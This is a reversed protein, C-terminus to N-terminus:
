AGQPLMLGSTSRAFIRGFVEIAPAAMGALSMFDRRRRMVAGKPSAAAAAGLSVYAEGHANPMSTNWGVTESTGDPVLVGYAETGTAQSASQAIDETMNSVTTANNSQRHSVGLILGDVEATLTVRSSTGGAGGAFDSDVVGDTGTIASVVADINDAGSLTIVVNATKAGPASGLYALGANWGTGSSGTVVTMAAGDWAVSTVSRGNAGFPFRVTLDTDDAQTTFLITMTAATVPTGTVSTRIAGAM